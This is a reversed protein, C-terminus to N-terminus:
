RITDGVEIPEIEEKIDCASIGQRAQIVEITGVVKGQKYVKLTDGPKIGADQGLDIIVFKGEQNIELVTGEPEVPISKKPWAPTEAQAQTQTQTQPKVVIPPLEVSEEEPGATQTEPTRTEPTGGSRIVDIQERIDNIQPLKDTLMTQMYNFKQEIAANKEQLGQFKKELNIKRENLSKLQRMLVANESKMSKLIEQIKTKDNKERVLEQTISDMIKQNYELQRKLDENERGLNNMDLELTSKERQLQENTIQASRLESRLNGLQLELDTKAKLIGAWYADTDQPLVQAQPQPAAQTEAQKLKLRELMKERDKSALEYKREVEQKERSVKDLEKNLLGTKNEYERIGKELKDLKSNLTINEKKLDDRERLILQKSSLTQIFLFFCAVLGVILGITIFKTKNEM